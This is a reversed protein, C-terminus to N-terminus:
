HAIRSVLRGNMFAILDTLESPRLEPWALKQKESARLMAPGHRWVAASITIPSYRETGQTLDPAGTEKRRNEHCVSCNKAEFLRAGREVNGTEDISRQLYLYALLNSMDGQGLVPFAEARSHALQRMLPAHNWMAAAYGVLVDPAPRVRLDIKPQATRGGFTHCSECAREFFVRGQEPNGPQFAASSSRADPLSRLYALLDVMEESSFRPWSVGANALEEYVKSSHNWMREAWALPDDVGSWTSIPLRLHSPVRSGRGTLNVTSEHCGRCGKAEFIQAGKEVNGGVKSYSLSYFYAFLDATEVSDLVPQVQRAQQARWMRPAHNWLATALQIPTRLRESKQALDPATKGGVGAFSHCSTCGKSQFLEGGRVSNGPFISIQASSAARWALILVLSICVLAFRSRM